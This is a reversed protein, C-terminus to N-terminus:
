GSFPVHLMYRKGSGAPMSSIAVTSCIKSKTVENADEFSKFITVTAGLATSM